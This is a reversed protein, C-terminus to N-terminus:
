KLHYILCLQAYLGISPVKTVLSLGRHSQFRSRSMSVRSVVHIPFSRRMMDAYFAVYAKSYTGNSLTEPPLYVLGGFLLVEVGKGNLKIQQHLLTVHRVYNSSYVKRLM